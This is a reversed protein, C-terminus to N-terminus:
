TQLIDAPTEVVFRNGSIWALISSVVAEGHLASLAKQKQEYLV